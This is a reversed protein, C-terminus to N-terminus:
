LTSESFKENTLDDRFSPFNIISQQYTDQQATRGAALLVHAGHRCGLQMRENAGPTVSVCVLRGVQEVADVRYHSLGTFTRLGCGVFICHEM